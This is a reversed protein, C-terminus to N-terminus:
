DSWLGGNVDIIEGTIFGADTGALFAVAAAVDEPTGMRGLPILARLSEPFDKTMATAIPGPAVANVTIRAAALERSLYSTLTHIGAKSIAYAVNGSRDQETADIWPRANGGNKGLVSGISVIRGGGRQRLPAIAAQCCVFVSKLNIALINDWDADALNEISGSGVIGAANVLIDLGGLSAIADAMAHRTAEADGLDASISHVNRGTAKIADITVTADQRDIIALDCGLRALRLAIANGIAGCGGVVIATKGALSAGPSTV